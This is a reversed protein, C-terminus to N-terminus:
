FSDYLGDWDNYTFEEEFSNDKVVTILKIRDVPIFEDNDTEFLNKNDYVADKYSHFADEASVLTYGVKNLPNFHKVYGEFTSIYKIDDIDTITAIFKGVKFTKTISKKTQKKYLKYVFFLLIPSIIIFFLMIYYINPM